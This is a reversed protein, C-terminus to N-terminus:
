CARALFLAPVFLEATEATETTVKLDSFVKLRCIYTYM